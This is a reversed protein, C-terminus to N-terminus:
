HQVFHKSEGIIIKAKRARRIVAKRGVHQESDKILTMSIRLSMGRYSM